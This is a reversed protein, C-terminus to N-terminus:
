FTKGITFVIAESETPSGSSSVQDSLEDSSFIGAIGFDIDSITTGWGIEIYDGDFDDGFTGYTGYLGNEGTITLGLFDYDADAGFGDWEGVSYELSFMGYGLNLNVEEYTDDFEGTYYYGTFGVSATFGSETEIGYGFYGDVEAGDGVDAAWSGAYFGGETWDIGVSASSNKQLIGRYYYESAWGINYSVEASASTAILGSSALVLGAALHTLRKM